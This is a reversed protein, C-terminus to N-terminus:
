KLNVDLLMGSKISDLNDLIKVKVAYVLKMRDEKTVINLPTFEAEPSIYTIEGKIAKDKLYDCSISVQRGTKLGPLAKEPVYVKVWLDTPDIITLVPSGVGVYEGESFNVMEVIGAKTSTIRSKDLATKTLDVGKEAQKVSYRSAAVTRDTAGSVLLALKERAADLQYGVSEVQAKSSALQAQAGESSHKANKLAHLSTNMALEANDFEQVSAAGVEYLAKVDDYNEKKLDYTEQASILNEESQGVLAGAQRFAAEAQKLASEAQKVAASQINIEEERNGEKTRALENEASELTIASQEAKISNEPTDITALVEGVKVQQGEEAKIEKLRGSAEASIDIQEAEATGYYTYSVSAANRNNVYTFIGYGAIAIILIVPIITKKGPKM